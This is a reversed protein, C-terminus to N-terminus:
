AKREKLCDGGPAAHLLRPKGGDELKRQLPAIQLDIDDPLTAPTGSDSEHAALVKAWRQRLVVEGHLRILFELIRCECTTLDRVRGARMAQRQWTDVQMDGCTLRQNHFWSQRLVRIRTLLDSLACPQVLHGDAAAHLGATPGSSEQATTMLLAPCLIGAQRLMWNLVLVAPKQRSLLAYGEMGNRVWVVDFGDRQLREVILTGLVPDNEILLISQDHQLQWALTNSQAGDATGSFAGKSVIGGRLFLRCDMVTATPTMKSDEAKHERMRHLTDDPSNGQQCPQM